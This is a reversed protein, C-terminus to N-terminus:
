SGPNTADITAWWPPNPTRGLWLEGRIRGAENLAETGWQRWVWGPVSLGAHQAAHPHDEIWANHFACVTVVLRRDLQPDKAQSRKVLEHGVLPGFCSGLPRALCVGYRTRADATVAARAARQARRKASESRLPTRRKPPGSRKVRSM